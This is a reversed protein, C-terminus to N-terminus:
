SELNTEAYLMRPVRQIGFKLGDTIVPVCHGGLM